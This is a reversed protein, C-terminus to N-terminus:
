GPRLRELPLEVEAGAPDLVGGALELVGPRQGAVQVVGAPLAHGGAAEAQEAGGPAVAGARRGPQGLGADAAGPRGVAVLPHARVHQVGHDAGGQVVVVLGLRGPQDVRQRRQGGPAVHPLQHDAGVQVAAAEAVRRRQGGRSSASSM